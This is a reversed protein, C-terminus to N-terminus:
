EIPNLDPSKPPIQLVKVKCAKYAKRSETTHLFKEGDCLMTWPGRRPPPNLKKIATTLKGEALFEEWEETTMKKQSHYAIECFGGESIAGWLPIARSLPVQKAYPDAGALEPMLAENKKRYIHTNGYHCYNERDTVDHPPITLVVGDIALSLKARFAAPSLDKFSKALTMRKKMVEPSYKQKQSRPLWKYGHRKLVKRVTSDEVQVYMKTALERALISSTCICEKRLRLLQRVLFTEVPKTVKWKKRGCNKYRYLRRGQRRNFERFVKAVLFPSPCTGQLNKVQKAIDAWPLKKNGKKKTERLLVVKRQNSFNLARPHVSERILVM